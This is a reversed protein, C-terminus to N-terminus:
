DYLYVALLGWRWVDQVQRDREIQELLGEWPQSSRGAIVLWLRGETALIEDSTVLRGGLVQYTSPRMKWADIHYLAPVLEPEYVLASLYTEDVHLCLDGVRFEDAVIAMAERVPPKAIDPVAFHVVTGALLLGCLLLGVWGTPSYRSPVGAVGQALFLMLFPALM